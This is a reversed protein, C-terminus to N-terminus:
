LLLDTTAEHMARPDILRAVIGTWGTQHFAGCGRGTDGHFYENFPLNDRFRPDENFKKVEGFIARNGKSDRLILYKPSIMISAGMRFYYAWDVVLDPIASSVM